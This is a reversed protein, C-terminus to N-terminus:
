RARDAVHVCSSRRPQAASHDRGAGVAAVDERGGPDFLQELLDDVADDGLAIVQTPLRRRVREERARTREAHQGRGRGYELVRECTDLRAPGPAEAEDDADIPDALRRSKATM